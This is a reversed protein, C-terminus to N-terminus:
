IEFYKKERSDPGQLRVNEERLAEVEEAMRSKEAAESNLRSELANVREMLADMREEPSVSSFSVLMTSKLPNLVFVNKKRIELTMNVCCMSVGTSDPAISLM